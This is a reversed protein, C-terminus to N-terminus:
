VSFVGAQAQQERSGVGAQQDVDPITEILPTLTSKKHIVRLGLRATVVSSPGQILRNRDSVSGVWQGPVLSHAYRKKQLPALAAVVFRTFIRPALSIGFPLVRFQYARGEFAFRLFQQHLPAIPIHFFADKLDIKMFWIDKRIAQLVDATRLMHFKLAKCYKNLSRLDLIPRLGGGKKPIIFYTSYFGSNLSCPEIPEIAGKDVLARLEQRLALGKTGDRVTTM